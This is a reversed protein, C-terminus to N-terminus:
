GALAQAERLWGVLQDDVEAPGHLLLTHVHRSASLTEHREVRPDEVVRALLVSVKLTDRRPTAAAFARGATLHITTQLPEVRVPPEPLCGAVLADFAERLHAPREAFHEEVTRTGCSHAQNPARFDRGCAPCRWRTM